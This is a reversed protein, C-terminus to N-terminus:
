QSAREEVTNPTKNYYVCNRRGDGALCSRSADPSTFDRHNYSEFYPCAVDVTGDVRTTLLANAPALLGVGKLINAGHCEINHTNIIRPRLTEEAM